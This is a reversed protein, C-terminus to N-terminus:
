NSKNLGGNTCKNLHSFLLFGWDAFFQKNDVSHCKREAVHKPKQMFGDEFKYLSYLDYRHGNFNGVHPRM